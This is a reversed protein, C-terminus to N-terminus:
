FLINGRGEKRKGVGGTSEETLRGISNLGKGHKEKENIDGQKKGSQTTNLYV